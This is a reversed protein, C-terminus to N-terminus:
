DGIVDYLESISVCPGMVDHAGARKALQRIQDLQEMAVGLKISTTDVLPALTVEPPAEIAHREPYATVDREPRRMVASPFRDRLYALAREREDDATIARYARVLRDLRHLESDLGQDDITM